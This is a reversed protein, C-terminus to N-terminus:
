RAGWIAAAGPQSYPQWTNFGNLDIYPFRRLPPNERQPVRVM